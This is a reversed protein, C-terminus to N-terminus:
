NIMYKVMDMNEYLRRTLYPIMNMYPGYPIYTYVEEKDAIKNYFNTNMDLLHAFKFNSKKSMGLNISDHNHTALLKFGDVDDLFNIANNYSLDTDFKSNFLQGNNKENNWYAGRVLKIGIKKRYNEFLNIDNELQKFSDKRYMQYTKILNLDDNHSLILRNSITHYLKNNTSDEADIFINIKKLKYKYIMENILPENFNFSSLKIAVNSNENLLPLIKLYEEYTSKENNSFEKIYNIIPIRNKLIQKKSVHLACKISNGAVFLM